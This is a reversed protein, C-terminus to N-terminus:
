AKVDYFSKKLIDSIDCSALIDKVRGAAKGDGHPNVVSRLTRQFRRSYLINFARAIDKKNPQCHIISRAKIRGSQRDGIDITGIKFSPAEIIGSSSNGIVADVYKMTSLYLLQGMSFFAKARRRNKSVYRKIMKNIIQGHTDANAATFIFNTDRLGDLVNLLSQFQEKSTNNDLTVPHFTVLLNHRNFNFGLRKSLELKTLFKLNRINDLGPAGVDFVRGPSEGLQIVRKRYIQTSTFHLHSMKTISHRIADDFAGRTLEGGHIHAIPIRSILAASAAGLLEFRDGLMVVIDPRIKQYAKSIGILSLGMSRSVGVATDLDLSIDVKEDIVFGDKEIEKYTLGFKPSLHMGTAIIFLRLRNDKKIEKMIPQLLGYDARGGTVVCIKRKKSKMARYVM